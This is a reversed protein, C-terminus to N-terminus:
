ASPNLSVTASPPSPDSSMNWRNTFGLDMGMYRDSVDVQKNNMEEARREDSGDM